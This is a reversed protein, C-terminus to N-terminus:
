KGDNQKNQMREKSDKVVDAESKSGRKLLFRLGLVLAYIGIVFIFIAFILEFQTM